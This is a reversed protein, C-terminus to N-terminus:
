LTLGIEVAFDLSFLVRDRIMWFTPALVEAGLSVRPTLAYFIGSALRLVPGNRPLYGLAIRLPIAFRSGKSVAIRDELQLYLLANSVRQERGRLNAYGFYGGVFVEQSLRYDVRAGLLHNYFNNSGAGFAAETQAALSWRPGLEPEADAEAELETTGALSPPQAPIADTTAPSSPAPATMQASPTPLIQLLLGHVVPQLDAAGSTARQVFPGTGDLSAVLIETVYQGGEAWVRAFVGRQSGSAYTLRWLDAPAPPYPLTVQQSFRATEEGQVVQYGLGGATTALQDNVFRSVVPDVGVAQTYVLVLRAAPPAPAPEVPTSETPAPEAPTPEAVAPATVAPTVAPTPDQAMVHGHVFVISFALCM